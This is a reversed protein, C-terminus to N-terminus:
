LLRFVGSLFAHTCHVRTLKKAKQMSDSVRLTNLLACPLSLANKASHCVICTCIERLRNALNPAYGFVNRIELM